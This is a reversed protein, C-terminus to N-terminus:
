GRRNISENNKEEEELRALAFWVKTGQGVESEITLGRGYRALLRKHINIIGVGKAHKGDLLQNIAENPIGKGNDSVEFYIRDKCDLITVSISGGHPTDMLGHRVANEVLPQVILMPIKQRVDAQINYATHLREGFRAKEISLYARVTELEDAITSTNNLHDFQFCGRLYDSFDLLLAKAKVPERTIMNSIVSLANYIFHPKIQARLFSAHSEELQSDLSKNEEFLQTTRIALIAAQGIIFFTLGLSLLYGTETWQNFYLMDNFAGAVVFIGGMLFFLAEKHGNMVMKLGIHIILICQVAIIVLYYNFFLSYLYSDLTLIMVSYLGHSALLARFFVKPTAERYVSRTYLLFFTAILPVLLTVIMSGLHFYINEFLTVLYTENSMLSRLAAAMCLLGFYLLEREKKRSIFLILYQIGSVFCIGAILIDTAIGRMRQKIMGDLPGIFFSQGIGGNVHLSNEIMLEIELRNSQTQIAHLSPKLYGISQDETMGNSDILEGNVWLSYATYLEPTKLGLMTAHEPLLVTLQYTAKGKSPLHLGEYKTWYLPVPYYGTMQNSQNWYFKWDGALKYVDKEDFNESTLDIVGEFAIPSVKEKSSRCGVLAMVVVVFVIMCISIRTLINKEL